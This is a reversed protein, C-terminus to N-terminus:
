LFGDAVIRRSLQQDRQDTANKDIFIKAPLADSAVLGHLFVATQAEQKHSNPLASALPIGFPVFEM